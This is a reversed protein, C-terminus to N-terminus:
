QQVYGQKLEEQYFLYIGSALIGLAIFFEFGVYIGLFLWDFIAVIAPTIFGAFALFTATYKKLLYGYLNYFIINACIIIITLLILFQSIYNWPLQFPGEYYRSTPFSLIGSGFMALGNIFIPSYNSKKVLMRVYIWGLSCSVVATLLLIYPLAIISYISFCQYNIFNDPGVFFLLGIIGIGFGIWKKMTMQENFYIYSFFATFFPSVNFMLAACSPAVDKLAIFEANFPIFIHIIMTIFFLYLDSWKKIKLGGQMFYAITLLLLGSISMRLAILFIPPVYFLLM